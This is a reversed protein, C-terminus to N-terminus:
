RGSWHSASVGKAPQSDAGRIIELLIPNVLPAQGAHPDLANFNTLCTTLCTTFFAADFDAAVQSPGLAHRWPWRCSRRAPAAAKSGAKSPSDKSAPVHRRM